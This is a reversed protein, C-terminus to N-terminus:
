TVPMQSRGSYDQAIGGMEDAKRKMREGLENRFEELREMKRIRALRRYLEIRM